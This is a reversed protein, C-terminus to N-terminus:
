LLKKIWKVFEKTQMVLDKCKDYDLSSFIKEKYSPYRAQINLPQLFNVLNKQETSLSSWILSESAIRELDHTYPPITNKKFQYYGKLIKEITQHCMFGVYLLRKTELMADATELDYEAIDIWYKVRENM